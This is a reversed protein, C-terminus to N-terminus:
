CNARANARFRACIQNKGAAIAFREGCEFFFDLRKAATRDSEFEVNAILGADFRHRDSGFGCEAM